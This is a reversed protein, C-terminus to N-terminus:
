VPPYLAWVLVYELEFSLRDYADTRAAFETVLQTLATTYQSQADTIPGDSDRYALAKSLQSFIPLYTDNLLFYVGVGPFRTQPHPPVIPYQLPDFPYTYAFAPLTTARIASLARRRASYDAFDLQNLYTILASLHDTDSWASALAISANILPLGTTSLLSYYVFSM